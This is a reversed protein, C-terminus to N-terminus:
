SLVGKRVKFPEKDNTNPPFAINGHISVYSGLPANWVEYPAGKTPLFRPWAKKLNEVAMEESAGLGWTNSAIALFFRTPAKEGQRAPRLNLSNCMGCKNGGLTSRSWGCEKCLWLGSLDRSPIAEVKQAKETPPRKPKPTPKTPTSKKAPIKKAPVKKKPTPKAM